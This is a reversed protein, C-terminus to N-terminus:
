QFQKMIKLRDIFFAIEEMSKSDFLVENTGADMIVRDYEGSEINRVVFCAINLSVGNSDEDRAYRTSIKDHFWEHTETKAALGDMELFENREMERKITKSLSAAM